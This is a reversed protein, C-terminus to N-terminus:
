SRDRPKPLQVFYLQRDVYEKGDRTKRILEHPIGVATVEQGPQYDRQLAEAKDGFAAFKVLRSAGPRDPDNVTLEVEAVVKGAKTRHTRVEGLRGIYRESKAKEDAEVPSPLPKEPEPHVPSLDLQASTQAAQPQTAETRVPPTDPTPPSYQFLVDGKPSVSLLFREPDQFVVGEPVIEAERRPVILQGRPVTVRVVQPFLELQSRRDDGLTFGVGRGLHRDIREEPIAHLATELSPIALDLQNATTDPAYRQTDNQRPEQDKSMITRLDYVLIMPFDVTYIEGM